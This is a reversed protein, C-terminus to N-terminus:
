AQEKLWQIAEGFDLIRGDVSLAPASSIKLALMEDVNTNIEYDIAYMDLKHKLVKCKPCDTTYFIIKM